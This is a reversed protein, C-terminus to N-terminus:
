RINMLDELSVQSLDRPATTQGNPQPASPSSQAFAEGSTIAFCLSVVLAIKMWQERKAVICKFKSVHGGASGIHVNSALRVDIM